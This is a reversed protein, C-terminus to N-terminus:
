VPIAGLAAARWYANCSCVAVCSVAICACLQDEGCALNSFPGDVHPSELVACSLKLQLQTLCEAYLTDGPYLYSYPLRSEM